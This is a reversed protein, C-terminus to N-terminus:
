PPPAAPLSERLLSRLLDGDLIKTPPQMMYNQNPPYLGWRFPRQPVAEGLNDGHLLELDWRERGWIIGNGISGSVDRFSASPVYNLDLKFADSGNSIRITVHRSFGKQEERREHEAGAREAETRLIEEINRVTNEPTDDPIGLNIKM